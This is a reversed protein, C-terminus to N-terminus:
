NLSKELVIKLFSAMLLSFFHIYTTTTTTSGFSSKISAIENKVKELKSTLTSEESDAATLEERAQHLQRKTEEVLRRLLDM